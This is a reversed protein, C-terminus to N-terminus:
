FDLEIIIPLHDSVNKYYLEFPDDSQPPFNESTPYQKGMLPSTNGHPADIAYCRKFVSNHVREDFSFHDYNNAYGGLAHGDKRRLTTFDKQTTIMRRDANFGDATSVGKKDFCIVETLFDTTAGSGLLNTNYDGLIITYPVVSTIDRRHDSIRAYIDGALIKFENRRMKLASISVPMALKNDDPKGYIIHTTILRIEVNRGKVHFRGVLPDRILRLLGSEKLTYNNWIRPEWEKKSVISLEIRHTNWIFAYAEERKDEGLFPYPYKSTLHNDPKGIFHKWNPGLYRVIESVRKGESLVEQLAIIDLNNQKIIMAIREIDRKSSFSLNCM